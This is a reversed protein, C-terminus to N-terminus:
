SAVAMIRDYENGFLARNSSSRWSQRLWHGSRSFAVHQGTADRVLCGTDALEAIAKNITHRTVGTAGSGLADRVTTLTIANGRRYAPSALITNKIIGHQNM